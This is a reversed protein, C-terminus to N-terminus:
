QGPPRQGAQLIQAQSPPAPPTGLGGGGFAQALQEALTPPAFAGGNFKLSQVQIRKIKDTTLPGPEDIIAQIAKDRAVTQELQQRRIGAEAAASAAEANGTSRAIGEMATQHKITADLQQQNQKFTDRFQDKQTDAAGQRLGLEQGFQSAQTADAAERRAQERAFESARTSMQTARDLGSGAYNFAQGLRAGIPAGSGVSSLLGMGFQRRAYDQMAPAQDPSVGQSALFPSPALAQGLRNNMNGLLEQLTM